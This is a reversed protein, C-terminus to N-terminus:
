GPAKLWLHSSSERVELTAVHADPGLLATVEHHAEPQQAGVLRVGPMPPEHHLCERIVQGVQDRVGDRFQVFNEVAFGDVDHGTGHDDGCQQCGHDGMGDLLCPCHCLGHGGAVEVHAQRGATSVLDSAHGCRDVRHGVPEGALDGFELLRVLGLLAEDGVDGVLEPCRCGCEERGGFGKLM